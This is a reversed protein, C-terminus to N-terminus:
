LSKTDDAQLIRKWRTNQKGHTSYVIEVDTKQSEMSDREDVIDLVNRGLRAKLDGIVICQKGSRVHKTISALTTPRFYLSDTPENYMGVFRLGPACSLEFAIVGEIEVDIM